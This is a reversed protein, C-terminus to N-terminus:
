KALGLEDGGLRQSNDGRFEAIRRAIPQDMLLPLAIAHAREM